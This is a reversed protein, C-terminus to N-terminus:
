KSENLSVQARKLENIVPILKIQFSDSKSPHPKGQNINLTEERSFKGLKQVIGIYVPGQEDQTM